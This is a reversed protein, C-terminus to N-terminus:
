AETAKPEDDERPLVAIRGGPFPPLAPFSIGMQQTGIACLSTFASWITTQTYKKALLENESDKPMAGHIGCFYHAGFSAAQEDDDKYKKRVSMKCSFLVLDNSVSPEEMEINYDFEANSDKEEDQPAFQVDVDLLTLGIVRNPKQAPKPKAM